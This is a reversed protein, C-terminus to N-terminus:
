TGGVGLLQSSALMSASVARQLAEQVNNLLDNDSERLRPPLHGVDDHVEERSKFLRVHNYIASRRLCYADIHHHLLRAKGGTSATQDPGGEGGSYTLQFHFPKIDGECGCCDHKALVRSLTWHLAKPTASSGTSSPGGNTTPVASVGGFGSKRFEKL